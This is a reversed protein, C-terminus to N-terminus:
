LDEQIPREQGNGLREFQIGDTISYKYGQETLFLQRREAYEQDKTGRTVISYFRATSGDKKLRLIRGLRQAEEQRSGFTGSVQIAVNADPLDLAFNAVKSLVLMKVDGDKFLDYLRERENRATRGTIIPASFVRAIKELQDLYMGIILINDDKHRTVISRIIDYKVPNEAAIRYKKREDALAYDMKAHSPMDVRIEICEAQAIWGQNELVKWSIDYKKPGILSFVEREKGDERVLTATLGLRRRAQLSATVKFIPAPLLHVEDYIILGWDRKQFLQFHPFDGEKSHRWTLIQYTTITIPSIEKKEGTYEGVSDAPVHTKDSIEAIWQRVGIVNPCLILTNSSVASMIGLGVMTKGAGCPLVVTGSGGGVGGGAHFVDVADQQYKRLEFKVGERTEQRLDISFHEGEVYGALDEVPHGIEILAQKVVGRMEPKIKLLTRGIKKGLYPRVKRNRWIETILAADGSELILDEEEKKLTLKGYRSIYDRVEYEINGPIPYKTYKELIDMVDGSKMGAAAANWLSLPTIRYTHIYELSKELEAFRSIDDRAGDYGPSEVELLLTKDSQIILPKPTASPM